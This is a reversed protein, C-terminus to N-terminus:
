TESQANDDGERNPDAERRKQERWAALGALRPDPEEPRCSCQLLNRNAGCTPCLGACDARCTPKLPLNLWIQERAIERLDAQGQGAYFLLSDEDDVRTEGSGFESAESVLILSFRTALPADFGELCRSCELRLTAELAAGLEAGRGGPRVRGVLRVPNVVLAGRPGGVEELELQRDFERGGTPLDTFDLLADGM